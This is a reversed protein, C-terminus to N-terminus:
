ATTESPPRSSTRTGRSSTTSAGTRPLVPRHERQALERRDGTWNATNRHIKEALELLWEEGTRNYLWYVSALNDGGAAAALLPAPLGRGAPGIGLQLVEQMLELVRPDGTYEYYSQLANLAVM